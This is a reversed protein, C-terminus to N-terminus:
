HINDVKNLYNKCLLEFSNVGPDRDVGTPQIEFSDNENVKLLFSSSVVPSDSRVTLVNELLM